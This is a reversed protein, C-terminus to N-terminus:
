KLKKKDGITASINETDGFYITISIQKSIDITILKM